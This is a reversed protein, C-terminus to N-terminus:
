GEMNEKGEEGGAFLNVLKFGTASLFSGCLIIAVM